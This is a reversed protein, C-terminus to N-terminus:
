QRIYIGVALFINRNGPIYVQHWTCIYAQQRIHIGIAQHIFLQRRTYIDTTQYKCRSGPIYAKQTIYRRTSVAQYINWNGSLYMYRSGPIHTQRRVYVGTPLYTYIYRKGLLYAQQRINTATAQYILNHLPLLTPPPGVASQKIAIFRPPPNACLSGGVRRVLAQV